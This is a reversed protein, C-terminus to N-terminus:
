PELRNLLVKVEQEKFDGKEQVFKFENKANNKENLKLYILGLYWHAKTLFKADKNKIYDELILKAEKTKNNALYANAIYFNYDTNKYNSTEMLTIFKTFNGNEYYVFAKEIRSLDEEGRVVPHMVNRYPEFNLAFLDENSIANTTLIFYSGVSLLLAFTAAILLRSWTFTVKSADTKQFEKKIAIREEQRIVVKLDKHFELEKKFDADIKILEDFLSQEVTTLKKNIHKQILLEKDM